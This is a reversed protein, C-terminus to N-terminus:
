NLRPPASTQREEFYVVIRDLVIKSALGAPVDSSKLARYKDKSAYREEIETPIDSTHFWLDFRNGFLDQRPKGLVVGGYDCQCMSFEISKGAVAALEQLNMGIRIGNAAHWSSVPKPYKRFDKEIRVTNPKSAMPLAQCRTLNISDDGEYIEQLSTWTIFAENDTGPFIATGCMFFGEGIHVLARKSIGNPLAAKLQAETMGRTVPGARKGPEILLNASTQAGAPLSLLISLMAASRYNMLRGSM